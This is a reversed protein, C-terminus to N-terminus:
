PYLTEYQRSIVEPSKIRKTVPMGSKPIITITFVEDDAIPRPPQCYINLIDGRQLYGDRSDRARQIYEGTCYGTKAYGTTSIISINDEATATEFGARKCTVNWSYIGQTTFMWSAEFLFSSANYTMPMTYGDVTVLCVADAIPEQSTLNTYNAYLWLDEYTGRALGKDLESFISLYSNATVTYASFGIVTFILTGTTYDIIVCQPPLCLVGDKLVAPVYEYPLGHMMITASKNLQNDLVIVRGNTISINWALDLGGSLNVDENYEVRGFGPRDIVLNEIRSVNVSSFDTTLGGFGTSIIVSVHRWLSQNQGSYIDECIISWNYLGADLVSPLQNEEQIDWSTARESGNIYLSCYAVPHKSSVNYTFSIYGDNDGSDHIPRDLSINIESNAEVMFWTTETLNEHGLQDLAIITVNHRSSNSSTFSCNYVNDLDTDEMICLQHGSKWTVNAAIYTIATHDLVRATIEVAEFLEFVAGEPPAIDTVNPPVTDILIYIVESVGTNGAPDTCESYVTHNGSEISQNPVVLVWTNNSAITRNVALAGFFLTCNAEPYLNEILLFDVAPRDSSSISNNLSTNMFVIPPVDDKAIFFFTTETSNMNGATDYAIITVNYRSEAATESFTYNYTDGNREMDLLMFSENWSVNAQVYDVEVNDMVIAIIEVTSGPLFSVAQQPSIITINPSKSDIYLSINESIGQNMEADTCNIYAIYNASELSEAPVLVSATGNSVNSMNTNTGNIILSCIAWPYINESINFAIGPRSNRTLTNNLEPSIFVRPAINDSITFQWIESQTSQYPDTANLFWYYTGGYNLGAVKQVQELTPAYNLIRMEDIYGIFYSGTAASGFADSTITAGIGGNSAHAAISSYAATTTNVLAGDVYLSLNGNDFVATVLHWNQTDTYPTSINVQSGAGTNRTAFQLLGANIRLAMGATSSGEEFIMRTGATSTPKIWTQVAKVSFANRFYTENLIFYRAAGDYRYAGAFKGQNDSWIPCNTTCVRSHNQVSNSFSQVFSSNEGYEPRNDFHWLAETGADAELVPATWNYALFTNNIGTCNRYLLELGNPMTSNSAFLHVCLSEAETNQVTFNLTRMLSTSRSGNPPLLLQATPKSNYLTEATDNIWTLNIIGATDVTRTQIEYTTSPFLGTANFFSGSVNAAFTGNIWIEVHSFDPEPPNTWNWFIWVYGIETEDLGSVTSPEPDVVICSANIYDPTRDQKSFVGFVASYNGVVSDSCEFQVVATEADGLSSGNTWNSVIIGCDGECSVNIINNAGASLVKAYGTANGLWQGIKGLYVESQNWSINTPPLMDCLVQLQSQTTDNSSTLSFIAQYQGTVNECTFNVTSVMGGATNKGNTWNHRIRSCDGTCEISINKHDGLSIFSTLISRNGNAPDGQGMDLTDETWYVSYVPENLGVAMWSLNALQGTLNRQFRINTDNTFRATWYYYGYTTAAGNSNWSLVPFSRNLNISTLSANQVAATTSTIQFQGKQVTAGPTDIVFWQLRMQGTTTRRTFTLTTRNTIDGLVATQIIQLANDDTRKTFLLWSSSTNVETLNANVFSSGAAITANGSQVTSGDNFEIVFYGIQGACATNTDRALRLTTQNVMEATWFTEHFDVDSTSNCSSTAYAAYRSLNLEELQVERIRDDTTYSINGSQVRIDSGEVVYWDITVGGASGARYFRIQTPSEIKAYVAARNPIDDTATMRQNFIVFARGTNVENINVTANTFGNEINVTGNQTRWIRGRQGPAVYETPHADVVSCSVNIEDAIRDQFSTISFIASFNGITSDSCEFWVSASEGDSLSTGNTWNTGISNCDGMCAISIETNTEIAVALVSMSRNGLGEPISDMILESQNWSIFTPPLMACHISINSDTTDNNSRLSFVADFVGNTSNSCTFNVFSVVGGSINTGNTWNHRIQSCNGSCSITVNINDGLSMISALGSRNGNAPTDQSLDVLSDNWYVSLFPPGLEVAMWSINAVVGTLNRQFRLNTANTFRATWYYYGYTTATGPSNWYIVPFARSLDVNQLSQNQVAATTSNVNFFGKQVKAGPTDIVFWQMNMGGTGTNRSFTLGTSNTIAGLVATYRVQTANDDARKTLIMWSSSVNVPQISKTTIISGSALTANGSQVTSGDNFEIVFYGIQGACATNTDRALRLTTQNVMEATWFTEHFDVDSTSNCSSTAYAAYRSLNLEALEVERIRDATTYSINGSQVRIDSGEVVYWDITVGGASGARYFRIQTPSEIKAYVAARNPIDDTATMRQNFIVFARSTNVPNINVTINTAANPINVTGNQTNWIRGKEGFAPDSTSIEISYIEGPVLGTRMLVWESPCYAEDFIWDKCKYLETGKAKIKIIGQDFSVNTPDIAVTQIFGEVSEESIRIEQYGADTKIKELRIEQVATGRPKIRATKLGDRSDTVAIESAVSHNRGKVHVIRPSVMLSKGTLKAGTESLLYLNHIGENRPKYFYQGPPIFFRKGNTELILRQNKDYSSSINIAEDVSYQLKDTELRVNYVSFTKTDLVNGSWDVARIIHLGKESAIFVANTETLNLMTSYRADAELILNNGLMVEGSIHVEEGPSYLEKDTQLGWGASFPMICAIAIAVFIAFHSKAM